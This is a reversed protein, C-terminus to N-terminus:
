LQKRIENTYKRIDKGSSKVRMPSWDILKMDKEYRPIVHFKFHNVQNYGKNSIDDESVHTIADAKSAKRVASSIKKSINIIHSLLDDPIDVMNRYHKKPIVLSHYKNIPNQSVIVFVKEDQYISDKFTQLNCFICDKM